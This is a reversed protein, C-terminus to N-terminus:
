QLTVLYATVNHIDRDKYKPLLEKHPKLPDKVEVKPIDGDRSFTRQRGDPETLTVFFDDIRNLVGQVPKGGVPTVTVTTPSVRTPPPAGGFGGRSGPMLWSQQLTKPDKIRSAIGKLDGTASHCGGCTSAFYAAGQKADGTVITEPVNRSVDYGGVRFSHIFASIEKVQQEPLNFPPMGDRGERMVKGILEGERDNMVLEARILNPGGSGGRADAGHCFTCHVGYIAKGREVMAPDAPPREPFDTRPRRVPAPKAGEVPRAAAGPPGQATVVAALLLAGTIAQALCPFSLLNRDRMVFLPYFIM